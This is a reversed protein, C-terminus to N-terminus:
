QLANAGSVIESLEKTIAAQRARNFDLTLRDIMEGANDTASSMATMRSGHESALSELMAQYIHTNVYRPLLVTFLRGPEPEFICDGKVSIERAESPVVPLLQRTTVIQRIASIFRTYVIYLIDIQEDKFLAIANRGIEQAETFPINSSPMPFDAAINYDRKKFFNRGKKGITILKVLDKDYPRIVETVRRIINTNYSGAMGRDSTILLVGINVPERVQLLPHTILEDEVSVLRGMLDYISDAYRRSQAARQQARQLRATAVMKLAKTIQQINRVTRIRRRIDRMSAM